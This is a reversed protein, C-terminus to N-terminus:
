SLAARARPRLWRDAVLLAGLAAGLLLWSGATLPGQGVLLRAALLALGALGVRLPLRARRLGLAVLLVSPVGWALTGVLFRAEEASRGELLGALDNEAEPRLWLLLTFLACGALIGIRRRGRPLADRPAQRAALALLLAAPLHALTWPNLLPPTHPPPTAPFLAVGTLVATVLLAAAAGAGLAPLTGHRRAIWSMALAFAACSLALDAEGALVGLASTLILATAGEIWARAHPPAGRRALLVSAIAAPLGVALYPRWRIWDSGSSDEWGVSLLGFSQTSLIALWAWGFRLPALEGGLHGALLIVLAPGAAASLWTLTSVSDVLAGQAGLLVAGLHLFTVATCLGLWAGSALRAAVVVLLPGVVAGALPYLFAPGPERVCLVLVVPELLVLLIGACWAGAGTQSPALRPLLFLFASAVATGLALVTWWSLDTSEVAALPPLSVM